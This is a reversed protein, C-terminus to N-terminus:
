KLVLYKHFGLNGMREYEKAVSFFYLIFCKESTPKNICTTKTHAAAAEDNVRNM